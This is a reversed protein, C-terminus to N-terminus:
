FDATPVYWIGTDGLFTTTTPRDDDSAANLFASQASGAPSPPSQARAPTSWILMALTAILSAGVLKKTPTTSALALRVVVTMFRIM